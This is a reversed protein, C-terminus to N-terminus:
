KKKAAAGSTAPKAAAWTTGDTPSPLKKPQKPKKTERNGRLQGKAMM